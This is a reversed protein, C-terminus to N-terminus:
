LASLTSVYTPPYFGVVDAAKIASRSLFIEPWFPMGPYIQTNSKLGFERDHIKNWLLL